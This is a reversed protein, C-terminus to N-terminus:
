KDLLYLRQGVSQIKVIEVLVPCMIRNYCKATDFRCVEILGKSGLFYIPLVSHAEISHIENFDVANIPEAQKM